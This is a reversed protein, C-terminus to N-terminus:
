QGQDGGQPGALAELWRAFTELDTSLDAHSGIAAEALATYYHDLWLAVASPVATDGAEGALRRRLGDLRAHVLALDRADARAEAAVRLLRSTSPEAVSM